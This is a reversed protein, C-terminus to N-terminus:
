IKKVVKLVKNLKTSKIIRLVNQILVECTTSEPNKSNIARKCEIRQISFNDNEFEEKIMNVDSNSMLINAGNKILKHITEFLEIHKELYFGEENYSVFSTPNEPVYPPDLYIFDDKNVISLAELFSCCRFNVDKVLKHINLINNKDIISPNKYNGFPVNFGNPGERYLGRFCTKNLFIFMSSTLISDINKSQNFLNRIWYYYSEKSTLAEEKNKPNRYSSNISSDGNLNKCSNYENVLEETKLILEEPNKQINIYINILQQNIDSVNITGSIEIENKNMKELLGLLVSGGGLFPEYYNNIKRPFKHLVKDLIQTKGGVWKLFPKVEIIEDNKKNFNNLLSVLEDKNKNSFGKISLEKCKDILQLKSLKSYDTDM